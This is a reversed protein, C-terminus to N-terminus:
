GNAPLDEGFMIRHGDPTVVGFERMGWEKDALPQVFDVGNSQYLAYLSEIGHVEIYAFYSHDGTAKASMADKCEGLMVHFSQLSLFEWGEVSFARKFGLKNIFYDTAIKLDNVALVHRSDVVKLDEHM